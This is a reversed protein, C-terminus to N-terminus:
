NIEQCANIISDSDALTLTGEDAYLAVKVEKGFTFGKIDSIKSLCIGDMEVALICLLTSILCVQRIERSM